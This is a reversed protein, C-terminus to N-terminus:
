IEAVGCKFSTTVSLYISIPQQTARLVHSGKGLVVCPLGVTPTAIYENNYLSLIGTYSEKLGEM